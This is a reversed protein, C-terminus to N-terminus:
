RYTSQFCGLPDVSQSRCCLQRLFLSAGGFSRSTRALTPLALPEPILSLRFAMTQADVPGAFLQENVEPVQHHDVNIDQPVRSVGSLGRLRPRALRHRAM